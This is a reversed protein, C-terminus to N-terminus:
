VNELTRLPACSDQGWIAAHYDVILLMITDPSAM